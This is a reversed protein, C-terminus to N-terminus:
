RPLGSSCSRILDAMRNQMRSPKRIVDHESEVGGPRGVTLGFRLELVRRTPLGALMRLAPNSGLRQPELQRVSPLVRFAPTPELM